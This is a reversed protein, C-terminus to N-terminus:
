TSADRINWLLQQPLMVYTGCDCLCVFYVYMCLHVYFLHLSSDCTHYKWSLNRGLNSGKVCKCVHVCMFVCSCVCVCVLVCTRSTEM